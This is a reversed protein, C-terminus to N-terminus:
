AIGTVPVVRSRNQIINKIKSQVINLFETDTISASDGFDEPTLELFNYYIEGTDPGDYVEWGEIEGKENKYIQVLDIEVPEEENLNSAIEAEVEKTIKTGLDIKFDDKLKFAGMIGFTRTVMEGNVETEYNRSKFLMHVGGEGDIILKMDEM